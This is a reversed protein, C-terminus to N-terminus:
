GTSIDVGCVRGTAGVAKALEVLSHGTGYGIELVREGPQVALAELGRERARHEGADAIADYAHSIRDYFSKTANSRVEAANFM